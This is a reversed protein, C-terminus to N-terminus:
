QGGMTMSIGQETFWQYVPYPSVLYMIYFIGKMYPEDNNLGLFHSQIEQWSKIDLGSLQDLSWWLQAQLVLRNLFLAIANHEGGIAVYSLYASFFLGIGTLVSFLIVKANKLYNLIRINGIIVIPVLFVMIASLLGTFKEGVSYQSVLSFLFLVIYKKKKTLSYSLGIFIVLQSMSFKIYEAQKPAINNWYYFRDVGYDNPHGYKIAVGFLTCCCLIYIFIVISLLLENIKWPFIAANVTYVKMLINFSGYAFLIIVGCLSLIRATAGSLFAYQGIESFYMNHEAILCVISAITVAYFVPFAIICFTSSRKLLYAFTIIWVFVSFYNSILWYDHQILTNSLFIVVWLFFLLALM